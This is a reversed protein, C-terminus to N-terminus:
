HALPGGAKAPPPIAGGGKQRYTYGDNRMLIKCHQWNTEVNGGSTQIVFGGRARVAVRGQHIGKFKGKPVTARVLDGTQFGNVSKQRMLYGRPFGFRDLRSRQYSGRGTAKISLVPPNWGHLTSVEGVCAADLAHTKPIDLRARNFKTRGGSFCGVGLGTAFALRTIATRAANVAAAAHLPRKTQRLIRQLRDPEESLFTQIPKSGKRQNCKHCALTLNRVGDSGGLIKPHIHERELAVGEADCYACRRGWKELLYEWLETGFLTGRQYEVGEIEPNELAQLDFRVSEICVTMIPAIKRYRKLWTAVNDVRSQLSPPLCVKPKRRNDFRPSRYRTKRNRRARRFGARQELKKRITGGRHELEALHLATQETPDDHLRVIAIGTTKAGPDVKIAVSQVEGTERETLQITFPYLRYVKAKGKKILIRARAASCPMLPMGNGSIVFARTVGCTEANPQGEAPKQEGRAPQVGAHRLAQWAQVRGTRASGPKDAARGKLTRPQPLVGSDTQESVNLM